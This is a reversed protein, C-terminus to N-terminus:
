TSFRRLIAKFLRSYQLIYNCVMHELYITKIKKIIRKNTCIIRGGCLAEINDLVTLSDTESKGFVVAPFLEATGLELTIMSGYFLSGILLMDEVGISIMMLPLQLYM